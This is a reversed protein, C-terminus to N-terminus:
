EKLLNQTTELGELLTQIYKIKENALEIKEQLAKIEKLVGSITNSLKKDFDETVSIKRQLELISGQIILFQSNLMKEIEQRAKSIELTELEKLFDLNVNSDWDNRFVLNGNVTGSTSPTVFTHTNSSIDKIYM